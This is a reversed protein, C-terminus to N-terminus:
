AQTPHNEYAKKWLPEPRLQYHKKARPESKQHLGLVGSKVRILFLFNEKHM